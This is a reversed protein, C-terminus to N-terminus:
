PGKGLFHLTLVGEALQDDIPPDGWNAQLDFLIESAEADSMDPQDTLERVRQATFLFLAVPESARGESILRDLAMRVDAITLVM